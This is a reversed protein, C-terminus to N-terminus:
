GNKFFAENPHPKKNAMEQMHRKQDEKEAQAVKRCRLCRVAESDIHGKAIEYWWKQQKATWLEDSGCDRCVFPKDIYFSPLLGYTNNHVLEAHDAAVSNLPLEHAKKFVDIAQLKEARKRRKEKIEQRRQKNSKMDARVGEVGTNV